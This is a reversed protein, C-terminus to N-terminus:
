CILCEATATAFDAKILLFRHKQVWAYVANKGGHARQSRALLGPVSAAQHGHLLDSM